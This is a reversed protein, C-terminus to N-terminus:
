DNPAQQLTVTVTQTKGNTDIYTLQVNAGVKYSNILSSLSHNQNVTQSGVKTIIDGAQLGAKDAPSGSVVAPTGSSSDATIYAGNSVPLNNDSAFAQTVPIYYVGLYPRSITGQSEVSQLEQKAENIPIAFGIGQADSAVATNIGIVNGEVDVLPGGSNGPNIAADTQFLNQLTEVSGSGEDGAEV